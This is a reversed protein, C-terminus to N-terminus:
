FTKAAVLASGTVRILGNWLDLGEQMQYMVHRITEKHNKATEISDIDDIFAYAVFNCKGRESARTHSDWVRRGEFESAYTFKNLGVVYAGSWKRPWM